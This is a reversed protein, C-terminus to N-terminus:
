EAAWPQNRNELWTEAFRKRREWLPAPMSWVDRWHYDHFLHAMLADYRKM